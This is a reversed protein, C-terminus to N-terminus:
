SKFAKKIFKRYKINANPIVEFVPNQYYKNFIEILKLNKSGFLIANMTGIRIVLLLKQMM